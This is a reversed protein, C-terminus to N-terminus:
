RGGLIGHCHPCTQIYGMYVLSYVLGAPFFLLWLLLAVILSGRAKRVSPGRYGCNPNPCIYMTANGRMGTMVLMEEGLDRKGAAPISPATRRPM